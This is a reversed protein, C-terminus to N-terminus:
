AQVGMLPQRGAQQWLYFMLAAIPLNKLLPAFPHLWYEPLGVGIMLSYASVTALQLAWLIRRQRWATFCAAGLLVDWASAALLLPWRAPAPIGLQALLALSQAPATFLPQVGSWLWLVGLAVFLYVPMPVRM